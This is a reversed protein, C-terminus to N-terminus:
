FACPRGDSPRTRHRPRPTTTNWGAGGDQELSLEGDSVVVWLRMFSSPSATNRDGRSALRSDMMDDVAPCLVGEKGQRVAASGHMPPIVISLLAALISIRTVVTFGGEM